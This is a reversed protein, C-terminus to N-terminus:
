KWNALKWRRVAADIAIRMKVQNSAIVDKFHRWGDTIHGQQQKNGMVYQAYDEDNIIKIRTGDGWKDAKWGFRLKDTRKYPIGGSFGNSAFYAKRQKESEFQYPNDPGHEKRTAYHQLGQQHNGILAFAAAETAERRVGLPLASLKDHIPKLNRVKINIM